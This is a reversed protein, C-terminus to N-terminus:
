AWAGLLDLPELRRGARDAWLATREVDVGRADAEPVLLAVLEDPRVQARATFRIVADLVPRGDEDGAELSAISPRADFERTQAEGKRRVIVHDRELLGPIRTALTGHLAAEDLGAEALFVGPFRVRYSAGELESMLSPSKFLIPRYGIVSVGHPLVANLRGALDVGPPQSFELDFVEARSRFGLPLPPGFSM